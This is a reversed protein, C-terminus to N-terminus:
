NLPLEFPFSNGYVVGDVGVLWARGGRLHVGEVLESGDDEPGFAAVAQQHGVEGGLSWEEMVNM